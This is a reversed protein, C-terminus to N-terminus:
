GTEATIAPRAQGGFTLYFSMGGGERPEAWAKGGHRTAVERVIALGTGTGEIDRSVARQFMEFIRELHEPAVGIGRDRVVVGTRNATSGLYPEVEIQPSEGPTSFKLANAILNYVAQTAWTRDVRLKPLSDSVHVAAGTQIIRHELRFLADRM